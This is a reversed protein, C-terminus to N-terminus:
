EGTESPRPASGTPAASTELGRSGLAASAEPLLLDVWRRYM